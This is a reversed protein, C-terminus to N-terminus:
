HVHGAHADLKGAAQSLKILIAGSTVVRETAAVGNLLESRMGDTAGLKVERKEFLEPTLQVYVYFSGQEELLATNPVTLAQTNTLTKLYIEVFGGAVFSGVNDIQLSVPILFNDTSASKGYSLIKGNLQKLSYTKNDHITRINASNIFGLIPSYKPQVEARLTLSKNQTIIAVPQGAQIYAGNQVLVQKVYGAIPSTVTQGDASFNRNLNDFLAKANDYLNKAAILDKDSVIKEKALDKAREYDLKSKEYNNKAEAYRVSVNDEAMGSGAITSLVQGASVPSGETLAKGSLIV